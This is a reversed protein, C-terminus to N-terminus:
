KVWKAIVSKAALTLVSRPLLRMGANARAWNFWGSIVSPQQGLAVIADDVVEAASAGEHPLEDAAAAFRTDTSGPLLSLVDVSTGQLEGWLAEGLFNDFAKSASYLAHLPLPQSGSVSGTFILAGRKRAVLKPLLAATIAVPAACNLRVLAALRAPDQEHFRGVYGVGANNIVIAVDLDSTAALLASVGGDTALDCAVCRVRVGNKERLESALAELKEAGRAALVLSVGDAALRRAFEEGIGSSAGTVVAWDGYRDRLSRQPPQFLERARWLERTILAFVVAAVFGAAIAGSKDRAYLLPWVAMSFAVQAAYLAAWPWMWSRMRWFGLVGAGYVFWHPPELLKAWVGDFRIGFWVEEDFRTPKMMFDWPVYIFAMYACFFMLANMWWPRRGLQHRIWTRM